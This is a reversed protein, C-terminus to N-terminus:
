VKFTSAAPGSAPEVAPKQLACLTALLKGRADRWLPEDNEIGWHPARARVLELKERLIGVWSATERTAEPAYDKMFDIFAALQLLDNRVWDMLPYAQKWLSAPVQRQPPERTACARDLADVAVHIREASFQIRLSPRGSIPLLELEVKGLWQLCRVLVQLRHDGTPTTSSQIHKLAADPASNRAYASELVLMAIRDALNSSQERSFTDLTTRVSRELRPILWRDHHRDFEHLLQRVALVVRLQEGAMQSSVRSPRALPNERMRAGALAKCLWFIAVASLYLALARASRQKATAPNAPESQGTRLQADATQATVVALRSLVSIADSPLKRLFKPIAAIDRLALTVLRDLEDPSIPQNTALNESVYNRVERRLKRLASRVQAARSRVDSPEVSTCRAISEIATTHLARIASRELGVAGSAHLEFDVALKAATLRENPMLLDENSRRIGDLSRLAHQLVLMRSARKACHAVALLHQARIRVASTGGFPRKFHGLELPLGLFDAPREIAPHASEFPSRPDCFFLLLELELDGNGTNRGLSTLDGGCLVDRYISFYLFAFTDIAKAPVERVSYASHRNARTQESHPPISIMGHYIAEVLSRCARPDRSAPVPVSRVRIRFAQLALECMIRRLLRHTETNLQNAILQRYEPALLDLVDHLRSRSPDALAWPHVDSLPTIAQSPHDFAETGNQEAGDPYSILLPSVSGASVRLVFEEFDTPTPAKASELGPMHNECARWYCDFLQLITSRRLGTESIALAGLLVRQWSLLGRWYCSFRTVPTLHGEQQGTAGTFASGQASLFATLRIQWELVPEAPSLGDLDLGPHDDPLDTSELIEFNSVNSRDLTIREIQHMTLWKPHRDGMVIFYSNRFSALEHPLPAGGMAPHQLRRLLRGLPEDRVYEVLAPFSGMPPAYGDFILITPSRILHERIRQVKVEDGILDDAFPAAASQALAEEGSIFRYIADVISRYGADKVQSGSWQRSVPVYCVSASKQQLRNCLAAAVGTLLSPLGECAVSIIPKAQNDIKRNLVRTCIDDITPQWSPPVASRRKLLLSNNAGPLYEGTLVFKLFREPADRGFFKQEFLLDGSIRGGPLQKAYRDAFWTNLGAVHKKVEDTVGDGDCLRQHWGRNRVLAAAGSNSHLWRSRDMSIAERSFIEKADIQSRILLKWHAEEGSIAERYLMSKFVDRLLVVRALPGLGVKPDYVWPNVDLRGGQAGPRVRSGVSCCQTWTEQLERTSLPQRWLQRPETPASDARRLRKPPAPM